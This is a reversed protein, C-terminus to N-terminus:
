FVNEKSSSGDVQGQSGARYLWHCHPWSCRALKDKTSLPKIINLVSLTFGWAPRILQTHCLWAQKRWSDSSAAAAKPNVSIETGFLVLKLCMTLQAMSTNLSSWCWTTKKGIGNHETTLFAYFNPIHTHIHSKPSIKSLTVIDCKYM